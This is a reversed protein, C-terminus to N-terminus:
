SVLPTDALPNPAADLSVEVEFLCAELASRGRSLLDILRRADMPLFPVARGLFQRTGTVSRVNRSAFESPYSSISRIPLNPNSAIFGPVNYRVKLCISSSPRHLELHCVVLAPGARRTYVM